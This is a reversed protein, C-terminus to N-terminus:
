SQINSVILLSIMALTRLTTHSPPPGQSSQLYDSLYDATPKTASFSVSQGVMLYMAVDNGGSGQGHSVVGYAANSAMMPVSKSDEDRVGGRHPHCSCNHKTHTYVQKENLMAKLNWNKMLHIINLLASVGIILIIIVSLIGGIVSDNSKRDGSLSGSHGM